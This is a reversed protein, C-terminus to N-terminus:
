PCLGIKFNVKRDMIGLTSRHTPVILREWCSERGAQWRRREFLQIEEEIGIQIQIMLQIQIQIKLQIQIQIMLQIQRESCSERGAM